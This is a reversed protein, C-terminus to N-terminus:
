IKKSFYDFDKFIEEIEKKSYKEGKIKLVGNVVSAKDKKDLNDYAYIATTLLELQSPTRDKFRTIVDEIIKNESSSFPSEIDSKENFKMRHSFASYDFSIIGESSLSITAEDVTSSYPGYFHLGYGCNLELGKQEILFVLKQLTKKGPDTGSIRSIDKILYAIKNEFEKRM